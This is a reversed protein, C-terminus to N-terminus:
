ACAATDDTSINLYFGGCRRHQNEIIGDRRGNLSDEKSHLIQQMTRRVERGERPLGLSKCTQVMYSPSLHSSFCSSLALSQLIRPPTSPQRKLLASASLHVLTPSSILYHIEFLFFFIMEPHPCKDFADRAMRKASDSVRNTVARSPSLPKQPPPSLSPYHLHLSPQPNNLAPAFTDNYHIRINHRNSM